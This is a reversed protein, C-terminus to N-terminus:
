KLQNDSKLLGLFRKALIKYSHHALVYERGHQGLTLREQEGATLLKRVSEAIASPNEPECSIGCGAEAVPDNGAAVAHIVPRGALMYDMLKNPSIGYRYLPQRSWGLFLADMQALVSPVAQKLVPPLFRVNKAGADRAKAELQAKEPGQGVLVLTVNASGLLSASEIFADLANSLSHQGVYGVLFRGASKLEALAAAHEDPLLAPVASEEVDIGNPICTFKGPDFGREHLYKDVNPLVSVIRDAHRYAYNETFQLCYVFPHWRSMGGLDILTLPWLDRVEFVLPARAKRAIRRAPFIVFPHPSSAIVAEPRVGGLMEAEHRRIQQLFTRMNWVRRLGNGEYSPTKLWVYRIGDIDEESIDKKVTPQQLRLHSFSAAVVTVNHGSRVWERALCFPRHEMGHQPSGAYHNILLINM